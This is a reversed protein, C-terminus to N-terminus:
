GFSWTTQLPVIGRGMKERYSGLRWNDEKVGITKDVQSKM